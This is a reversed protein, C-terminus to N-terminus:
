MQDILAIQAQGVAIARSASTENVEIMYQDHAIACYFSQLSSGQTCVAAAGLAGPDVAQQTPDQAKNEAIFGDRLTVAAAPNKTRYVSDRGLTVYDVGTQAFVKATAVPDSDFNLEAAATYIGDAVTANDGTNPLTHALLGDHDMPQTNLSGSVPKFGAAAKSEATLGATVIKAVDAAAAGKAGEAWLYSVLPGVPLFAQVIPGGDASTHTTVVSTPFGPLAAAPTYKVSDSMAKAAKTAAGANPFEFVAAVLGSNDTGNRAASFAAVMHNQEAVAPTPDSFLLSLAAANKYPGTPLVQRQYQAAFVTPPVMYGGLRRSELLTAQQETQPTAPIQQPTTPFDGGAGGSEGTSDSSSTPDSSGTSTSGTSETVSASSSDTPATVQSSSSSTSTSSDTTSAPGTFPDTPTSSPGSSAAGTLGPPAIAAGNVATSCATVLLCLGALAALNRRRRIGRRFGSRNPTAIQGQQPAPM